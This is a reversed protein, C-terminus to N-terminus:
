RKASVDAIDPWDFWEGERQGEVLVQACNTATDMVRGNAKKGDKLTVTVLDGPNFM